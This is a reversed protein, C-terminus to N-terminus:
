KKWQSGKWFFKGKFLLFAYILFNSTPLYITRIVHVQSIRMSFVSWIMGDCNNDHAYSLCEWIIHCIDFYTNKLVPTRLVGTRGSGLAMTKTVSVRTSQVVNPVDRVEGQDGVPQTVEVRSYIRTDIVEHWTLLELKLENNIRQQYVLPKVNVRVYPTTKLQSCFFSNWM